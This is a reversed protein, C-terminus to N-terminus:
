TSKSAIVLALWIGYGITLLGFLGFGWNILRLVSRPPNLDLVIGRLGVLSHTVVTIVFLIEIAPILPNRFYAVIDDYTMLGSHASGLYHNVTLHLALILVLLPGTVIKVLWLWATEGPRPGTPYQFSPPNNM